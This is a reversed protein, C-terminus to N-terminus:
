LKMLIVIQLIVNQGDETIKLLYLYADAIRTSDLLFRVEKQSDITFHYKPGSMNANLESLTKQAGETSFTSYFFPNRTDSDSWVGSYIHDDSSPSFTVTLEYNANQNPSYTSPLIIYKGPNLTRIIQAQHKTGLGVIMM